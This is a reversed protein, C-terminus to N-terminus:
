EEEPLRSEPRVTGAVDPTALARRAAWGAAGVFVVGLLVLAALAGVASRRWLHVDQPLAPSLRHRPDDIVTLRDGRAWNGDNPVLTRALLRGDDARRLRLHPIAHGHHHYTWVGDVVAVIREGQTALLANSVTDSGAVLVIVGLVGAALGPWLRDSLRVAGAAGAITVAVGALVGLLPFGTVTWLAAAVVYGLIVGSWWLLARVVPGREGPM